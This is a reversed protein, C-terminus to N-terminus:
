KIKYLDLQSCKARYAAVKPLFKTKTQTFILENNGANNNIFSFTEVVDGMYLVIISIQNKDLSFPAVSGGDNSASVFQGAKSTFIVDFNGKDDQTLRYTGGTFGGQSWGSGSEPVSGAFPYYEYGKPNECTAITEAFALHPLFFLLLLLLLKKM